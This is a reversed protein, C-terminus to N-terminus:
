ELWWHHALWYALGVTAAESVAFVIIMRTNFRWRGISYALFVFPLWLPGYVVLMALMQPILELPDDNDMKLLGMWGGCTIAVFATGLLVERTGFQFKM